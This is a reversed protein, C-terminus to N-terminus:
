IFSNNGCAAAVEFDNISHWGVGSIYDDDNICLPNFWQLWV